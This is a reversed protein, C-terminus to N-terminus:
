PKKNVKQRRKSKAVPGQTEKPSGGEEVTMCQLLPEVVLTSKPLGDLSTPM